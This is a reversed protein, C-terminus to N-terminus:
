VLLLPLGIGLLWAPSLVGGVALWELSVSVMGRAVEMKRAVLHGQLVLLLMRLGAGLVSGGSFYTLLHLLM